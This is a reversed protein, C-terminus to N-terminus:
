KIVKKEGVTVTQNSFLIEDICNTISIESAPFFAFPFFFIVIMKLVELLM